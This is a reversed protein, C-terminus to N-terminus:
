LFQVFYLDVREIAMQAISRWVSTYLISETNTFCPLLISLGIMIYAIGNIKTYYSFPIEQAVIMENFIDKELLSKM